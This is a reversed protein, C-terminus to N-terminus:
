LHRAERCRLENQVVL